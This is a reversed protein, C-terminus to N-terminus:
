GCSGRVRDGHMVCWMHLFRVHFGYKGSVTLVVGWKARIKWGLQTTKLIWPVDMPSPWHDRESISGEVKYLGESM